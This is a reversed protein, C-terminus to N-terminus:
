EALDKLLDLQEHLAELENYAETMRDAYSQAFTPRFIAGRDNLERALSSRAETFSKEAAEIKREIRHIAYEMKTM